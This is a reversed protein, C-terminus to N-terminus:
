LCTRKLDSFRIVAVNRAELLGALPRDDTLVLCSGPALNAIATDTLGFRQFHAAKVLTKSAASSENWSEIAASLCGRLDSRLPEECQGMFNSVETLVHPTTTIRRFQSIVRELLVFDDVSYGSIRNFSRIREPRFAGVFFLLLLNTDILLERRRYRQIQRALLQLNM